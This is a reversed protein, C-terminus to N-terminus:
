ENNPPTYNGGGGYGNQGGVNIYITEGQQLLVEGYAYAGYGGRATNTGDTADGGQAGWTELSYIGTKPATFTQIQGTYDFNYGEDSGITCSMINSTLKM